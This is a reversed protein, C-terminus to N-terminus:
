QCMEAMLVHPNILLAQAQKTSGPQRSPSLQFAQNTTAKFDEWKTSASKSNMYAGHGLIIM